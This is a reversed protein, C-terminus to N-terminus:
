SNRSLTPVWRMEAIYTQYDVQETPMPASVGVQSGSVSYPLLKKPVLLHLVEPITGIPQGDASEVRPCGRPYDTMHPQCYVKHRYLLCDGELSWVPCSCVRWDTYWYVKKAISRDFIWCIGWLIKDLTADEDGSILWFPLNWTWNPM